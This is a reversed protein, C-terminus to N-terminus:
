KTQSLHSNSETTDQAQIKENQYISSNNDNNTHVHSAGSNHALAVSNMALLGSLALALALMKKM